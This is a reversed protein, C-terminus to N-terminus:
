FAWKISSSVLGLHYILKSLNVLSTLQLVLIFSWTDPKWGVERKRMWQGVRKELVPKSRDWATPHSLPTVSYWLQFLHRSVKYTSKSFFVAVKSSELDTDLDNELHLSSLFDHRKDLMFTQIGRHFTATKHPLSTVTRLLVIFLQTKRSLLLESYTKKWFSRM